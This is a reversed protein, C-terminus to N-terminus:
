GRISSTMQDQHTPSQPASASLTTRGDIPRNLRDSITKAKAPTDNPLSVFPRDTEVDGIVSGADKPAIARKKRTRVLYSAYSVSQVDLWILTVYEYETCSKRRCTKRHADLMAAPMLDM